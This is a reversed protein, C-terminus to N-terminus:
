SMHVPANCDLCLAHMHILVAGQYRNNCATLSQIAVWCRVTQQPLLGCPHTVLTPTKSTPKLLRELASSPAGNATVMKCHVQLIAMEWPLGMPPWGGAQPCPVQSGAITALFSRHCSLCNRSAVGRCVGPLLVLKSNCDSDACESHVVTFATHTLILVHQHM